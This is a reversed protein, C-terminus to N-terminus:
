SCSHGTPVYEVELSLTWASLPIVLVFIVSILWMLSKIGDSNMTGGSWVCACNWRVVCLCNWRVAFM